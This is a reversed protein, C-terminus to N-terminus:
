EAVIYSLTM